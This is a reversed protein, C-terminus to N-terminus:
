TFFHVMRIADRARITAADDMSSSPASAAWPKVWDHDDNEAAHASVRTEVSAAIKAVPEAVQPM